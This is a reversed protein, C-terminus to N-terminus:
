LTWWDYVLVPVGIRGLNTLLTQFIEIEEDRGPQGLRIRQMPTVDEMVVLELGAEGLQDRYRVLPGYDWPREVTIDWDVTGARPLVGCAHRVGVQALARWFPHPAPELVIEAIRIM